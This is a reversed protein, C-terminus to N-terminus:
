LSNIRYQRFGISSCHYRIFVLPLTFLTFLVQISIFCQENNDATPKQKIDENGEIAASSSAWGEKLRFPVLTSYRFAKM